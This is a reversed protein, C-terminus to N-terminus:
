KGHKNICNISENTLTERETFVVSPCVRRYKNQRKGTRLVGVQDLCIRGTRLRTRISRNFSLWKTGSDGVQQELHLITVFHVNSISAPKLSFQIKLHIHVLNVILIYIKKEVSGQPSKQQANPRYLSFQFVGLYMRKYWTYKQFEMGTSQNRVATNTTEDKEFGKLHLQNGQWGKHM